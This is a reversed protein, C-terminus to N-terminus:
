PWSKGIARRGHDNGAETGERKCETQDAQEGRGGGRLELLEDFVGGGDFGRHKRWGRGLRDGRDGFCRRRRQAEEDRREMAVRDDMEILRGVAAVQEGEVGVHEFDPVDGGLGHDGGVFLRRATPVEIKGLGDHGRPEGGHRALDHHAGVMLHINEVVVVEGFGDQRAGSLFREGVAEVRSALGNM